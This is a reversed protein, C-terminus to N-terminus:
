RPPSVASSGAVEGKGALLRDVAEFSSVGQPLLARKTGEWVLRGRTLVGVRDCLTEVEHVDHTSLLICAGEAAREELLMWLARRSPVDLERTPEDLLIVPPEHILTRVIEAKRRNGSSLRGIPIEAFDMFDLRECLARGRADAEARSLGHLGGFLRFHRIPSVSPDGTVLEGPLYGLRRRVEDPQQTVDYGQISASGSSPDALTALMRLCTTKGAGNLGLLGYIEGAASELTLDSVAALPGYSKSLAVTRVASVM